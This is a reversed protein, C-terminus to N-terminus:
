YDQDWRHAWGPRSPYSVSEAQSCLATWKVKDASYNYVFCKFISNCINHQYLRVNQLGETETGGATGLHETDPFGTSFPFTVRLQLDLEPFGMGRYLHLFLLGVESTKKEGMSLSHVRCLVLQYNNTVQLFSKHVQKHQQLQQVLFSKFSNLSIHTSTYLEVVTIINLLALIRRVQKFYENNWITNKTNKYSQPKVKSM